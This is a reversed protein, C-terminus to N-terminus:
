QCLLSIKEIIENCKRGPVRLEYKLPSFFNARGWGSKDIKGRNAQGTAGEWM